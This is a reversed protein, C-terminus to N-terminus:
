SDRTWPAAVYYDWTVLAMVVAVLVITLTALRKISALIWQPALRRGGASRRLGLPTRQPAKPEPQPGAPTVPQLEPTVRATVPISDAVAGPAPRGVADQSDIQESVQPADM